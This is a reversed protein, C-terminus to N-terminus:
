PIVRIQNVIKRVGRVRGAAELAARIQNLSTQTGVLVVVGEASDVSIRHAEVRDSAQLRRFVEARIWEDTLADAPPRPSHSACSLSAMLLLILGPQLPCRLSRYAGIM